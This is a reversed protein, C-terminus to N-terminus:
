PQELARAAEEFAAQLAQKASEATVDGASWGELGQTPDLGAIVTSEEDEYVVINLALHDGVDLGEGGLNVAAILREWVGMFLHQRGGGAPQPAPMESLIRIGHARLAVRTMAVAEDFPASVRIGLGYDEEM